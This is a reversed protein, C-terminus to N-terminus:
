EISGSVQMSQPVQASAQGESAILGAYAACSAYLFRGRLFFPRKKIVSSNAM